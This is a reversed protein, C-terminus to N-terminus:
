LPPGATSSDATWLKTERPARAPRRATDGAADGGRQRLRQELEAISPAVIFVLVAEPYRRRLQAAGQTDIDLLVDKGDALAAELPKSPTGYLTGPVPAWEAFGGRELRARFQRGSVFRLDVGNSLGA